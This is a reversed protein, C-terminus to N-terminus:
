RDIEMAKPRHQGTPMKVPPEAKTDAWEKLLSPPSIEFKHLEGSFSCVQQLNVTSSINLIAYTRDPALKINNQAVVAGVAYGHQGAIWVPDKHDCLTVPGAPKPASGSSGSPQHPEAEAAVHTNDWDAFTVKKCVVKSVDVLYMACIEKLTYTKCERHVKEKGTILLGVRVFMQGLPKLVADVGGLEVAIDFANQLASEAETAVTLQSKSSIKTVDAKSLTKAVSDEFKNGTLNTLALAVRILPFM